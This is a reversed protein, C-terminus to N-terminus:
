TVTLTGAPVVVSGRRAHLGYRGPELDGTVLCTRGALIAAPRWRPADEGRWTRRAAGLEVGDTLLRDVDAAVQALM